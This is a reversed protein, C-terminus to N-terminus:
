EKKCSYARDASKSIDLVKGDTIDFLAGSYHYTKKTSATTQSTWHINNNQKTLMFVQYDRNAKPIFSIAFGYVDNADDFLLNIMSNQKKIFVTFPKGAEIRYEQSIHTDDRLNLYKQQFESLPIESMKITKEKMEYLSRKKFSWKDEDRIPYKSNLLFVDNDLKICNSNPIGFVYQETTTIKLNATNNGESDLLVKNTSFREMQTCSVVLLSVLSILLPLKKM